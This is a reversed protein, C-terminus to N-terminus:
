AASGALLWRLGDELDQEWQKSAGIDFLCNFVHPLGPYVFLKTKVGAESLIQEYVLNSDRLPDLGCVQFIAPPLGEFSSRHYPSMDPSFLNSPDTTYREYNDIIIQLQLIPADKLEEFSKIRSKYKDPIATPPVLDPSQLIQGTIKRGTVQFFPDDRARHTLISALNGGASAGGVILGASVNASIKSQNEVVWKLAAYCDNLGTPFLYEPALRYDVNVTIVRCDVALKRLQFDDSELNGVFFGGPHMWFVVPYKGSEDSKPTPSVIRIVIEGGEVPVKHDSVRYESEPPVQPGYIQNTLQQMGAAMQRLVHPDKSYPPPPPFHAVAALFEPDPISLLSTDIQPRSM